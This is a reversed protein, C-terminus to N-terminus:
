KDMRKKNKLKICIEMDMAEALKVLMELTPNYEGSEFRSINTRSIGARKAVDEQTMKKLKREYNYQRVVTNRINKQMYELSNKEKDNKNSIEVCM